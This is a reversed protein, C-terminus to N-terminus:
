GEVRHHFEVRQSDTWTQDLTVVEGPEQYKPVNANFKPSTTVYIYGAAAIALLLVLIAFVKNRM